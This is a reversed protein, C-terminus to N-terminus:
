YLGLQKAETFWDIDPYKAMFRGARQASGREFFKRFYPAMDALAPQISAQFQAERGEPTESGYMARLLNETKPAIGAKILEPTTYGLDTTGIPLALYEAVKRLQAKMEATTSPTGKLFDAFTLEAKPRLAGKLEYRTIAEGARQEMPRRAYGVAGTYEPLSQLYRSFVDPLDEAEQRAFAAQRASIPPQAGVPEIATPQAGVPEITPQAGVPEITPQAGVPIDVFGPEAIEEEWKSIWYNIGATLDESMMSYGSSTFLTALRRAAEEKTISGAKYDAGIRAVSELVREPM